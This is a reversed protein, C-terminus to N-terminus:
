LVQMMVELNMKLEVLLGNGIKIRLYFIIFKVEFDHKFYNDM